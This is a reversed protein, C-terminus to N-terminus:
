LQDKKKDRLSYMEQRVESVASEIEDLSLSKSEIQKERELAGISMLTIETIQREQESRVLSGFFNTM